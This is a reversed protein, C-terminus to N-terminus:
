FCPVRLSHGPLETTLAEDLYVVTAKEIGDSCMYSDVLSHTFLHFLLDIM